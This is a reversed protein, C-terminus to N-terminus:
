ISLLDMFVALNTLAEPSAINSPDVMVKEHINHDM